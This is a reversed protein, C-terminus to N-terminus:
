RCRSNPLDQKLKGRWLLDHNGSSLAAQARQLKIVKKHLLSHPGVDMTSVLEEVETLLSQASTFGALQIHGAECIGKALELTEGIDHLLNTGARALKEAHEFEGRHRTLTAYQCLTIGRQRSDRETSLRALAQEFLSRAEDTRGKKHRLQAMNSLIIGQRQRDATERALAFAQEYNKGAQDLRDLECNLTGINGLTISQNLLENAAQFIELAQYYIKQAKESFGQEQFIIALELLATGEYRPSGSKRAIALSQELLAIAREFQGKNKHLSALSQLIQGQGLRDSVARKISLAQEYCVRAKEPQGSIQHFEGLTYLAGAEVHKDGVEQLLLLAQSTLKFAKGMQDSEQHLIALNVMVVGEFRRDGTERAIALAKQCAAKAKERQGQIKFLSALTSLTHGENIKNGGQRFITLAQQCSSLAKDISGQQRHLIALNGLVIAEEDRNDIERFITLAQEYFTCAQELYGQRNYLIALNELTIGEKLRNGVERHIIMAQEATTKAEEIRNQGEYVAALATLTMGELGRDGIHRAEQLSQEYGAEAAVMLGRRYLVNWNLENRATISETTPSFVLNLFAHYFRESDDLAYQDKARRAAALYYPRAKDVLGAQDWHYALAGLFADLENHHLVEINEAATRHLHRADAATLGQYYVERIKDHVYRITDGKGEALIHRHLVEKVADMFDDEPLKTMHALLSLSAERGLVACAKLLTHAVASLVEFRRMVLEKLAHPLPLKEYIVDSETGVCDSIEWEGARNRWLMGQDVALRIYEAVYFPIGESHRALFATFKPPPKNLALMDQVMEGIAEQNLRNLLLHVVTKEHLLELLENSAEESRYSGVILIPNRALFEAQSTYKLFELALNDAWQLDDIVILLPKQERYRSLTEALIRFLRQQAAAPPLPTPDPYDHLGPVHELSPEYLALEKGLPGLIRETEAAGRELCRDAIAQLPKQFAELPSAGHEFCEGTLVLAQRQVAERVFEMVMRTKGVGSEGDILILSGRGAELQNLKLRLSAFQDERGALGPRYIYSHGPLDGPDVPMGLRALAHIVDEAYGIRKRPNKQLLQSILNDLDAPIEPVVDSLPKPDAQLHGLIISYASKATFPPYGTLLEYLICGLSYLDARADVLEGRIQEPAMYYLTGQIRGEVELTERSMERSFRHLIGLDVIVPMEDPRVLINDPKLDRHVIGQGHLFALPVCIRGILTLIKQLRQRSIVLGSWTDGSEVSVTDAEPLSLETPTGPATMWPSKEKFVPDPNTVTGPLLQHTSVDPRVEQFTQCHESLT